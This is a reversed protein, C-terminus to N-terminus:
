RIRTQETAATENPIGKTITKKLWPDTIVTSDFNGLGFQHYEM